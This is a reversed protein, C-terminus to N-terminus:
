RRLPQLRYHHVRRRPLRGQQRFLQTLFRARCLKFSDASTLLLVRMMVGYRVKVGGYVAVIDDGEFIYVDGAWISDRWPQMRVYTRYTTDPSFKKLCRMSDWGHNVFVQNKSDTGDSANMIFGSLHGFSDIWYPNRHFNAQPAQFKVRATAEHHESDLIVERISQYNEDYDVLASFLKYVMGRKMRHAEGKIVNEELLEISRKILYSSRKWEMESAACDFFKVECSAHDLIKKGEPTVSWVRVSASKNAWNATASVRFLEKGTKAILPKPVTVNCVDL